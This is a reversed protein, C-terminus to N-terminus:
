IWLFRPRSFVDFFWSGILTSHYWYLDSIVWFWISLVQIHLQCLCVYFTEFQRLPSLSGALLFIIWTVAYRKPKMEVPTNSDSKFLQSGWVALVKHWVPAEELEQCFAGVVCGTASNQLFSRCEVLKVCPHLDCVLFFFRVPMFQKHDHRVSIYVDIIFLLQVDAQINWM